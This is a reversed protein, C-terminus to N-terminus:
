EKTEIAAYVPKARMIKTDEYYVANQAKVSIGNSREYTVDGNFEFKKLTRAATKAFLKETVNSELRYLTFPAIKADKNEFYYGTAGLVILSLGSANM